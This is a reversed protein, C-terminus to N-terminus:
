TFPIANKSPPAGADLPTPWKRQPGGDKDAIAVFAGIEHLLHFQHVPMDIGVQHSHALKSPQGCDHDVRSAGQTGGDDLSCASPAPSQPFIRPIDSNVV